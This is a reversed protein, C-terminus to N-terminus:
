AASPDKKELEAVAKYVGNTFAIATRQSVAPFGLSQMYEATAENRKGADEGLEAALGALRNYVAYLDITVKADGLTVPLFGAEVLELEM